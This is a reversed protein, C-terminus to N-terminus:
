VESRPTLVARTPFVRPPSRPPSLLTPLYRVLSTSERREVHGSFILVPAFVFGGKRWSKKEDTM